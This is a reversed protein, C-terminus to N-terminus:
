ERARAHQLLRVQLRRGNARVCAALLGQVGARLWLGGSTQQMGALPFLFYVSTIYQTSENLLGGHSHHSM